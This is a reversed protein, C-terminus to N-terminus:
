RWTQSGGFRRFHRRKLGANVSVDGPLLSMSERHGADHIDAPSFQTMFFSATVVRRNNKQLCCYIIEAPMIHNEPLVVIPPTAALVNNYIVNAHVRDDAYVKAFAGPLGGSRSRGFGDQVAFGYNPSQCGQRV